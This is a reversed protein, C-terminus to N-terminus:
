WGPETGHFRLFGTPCAVNHATITLTDGNAAPLIEVHTNALAGPCSGDPGTITADGDDVSLGLHTAIGAGDFSVTTDSTFM